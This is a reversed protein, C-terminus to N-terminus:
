EKFESHFIHYYNPQGEHLPHGEMYINLVIRGVIEKTITDTYLKVPPQAIHSVEVFLENPYKKIFDKFEDETVKRHNNM